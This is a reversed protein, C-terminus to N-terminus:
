ASPWFFRVTIPVTVEVKKDNSDSIEVRMDVDPTITSLYQRFALSDRSLFENDVFNNIYSKESKGDVSLIMQKLRTTLESSQTKSIKQKANIESEIDKEDKGNLLKFTVERETTPLKFNFENVGKKFKSFKIEVPELKTLDVSQEVDDYTFTYEKGYGLIRAAVMIANKDGILMDDLKISKDVVLSELLKDIVTGQQILNQSTLIDEERATMYKVEVKGSSLPHGEFYFYGKSPLEVMETPFKYDAM